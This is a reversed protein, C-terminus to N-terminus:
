TGVEVRLPAAAVRLRNYEYVAEVTYVGPCRKEPPVTSLLPVPARFTQGPLLRLVAREMMPSFRNGFYDTSVVAGSPGTVILDLYELPSAQYAIEVPVASRNELELEGM